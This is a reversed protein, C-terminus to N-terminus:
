NERVHGARRRQNQRDDGGPQQQQHPHDGRREAARGHPDLQGLGADSGGNKQDAARHGIGVGVAYGGSVGQRQFQGLGSVPLGINLASVGHIRPLDSTEVTKDVLLDSYQQDGDQQYTFAGSPSYNGDSGEEYSEYRKNRLFHLINNDYVKAIQVQVKPVNVLSLGINRSGKASLYLAKRNAFSVSAPMQGFFLDRTVPEDLKAGLTGRIQDTLTLVYTDTETFDGRIVFGNETLEATTTVAPQVSFYAKIDSPQLEQTTVVRVVGQPQGSSNTEYSTRVDVIEVRAKSPITTTATVPDKSAYTTNPVKLGKGIDLKLPQENRTDPADTLTLAVNTPADARGPQVTIPKDDATLKLSQTVQGADVAYNFRLRAKAEARGSQRNRAWWVETNQLELYPTHFAVPEGSVARKEATQRGLESTLEARYDTALDFAVAPSFVLENPATWRFKGRVAPVFRVYQTSDWSDLQSVPVVNRNFTFILNQTQQVEDDFNRGVLQVDSSMRACTTLLLPLLAVLLAPLRRFPTQM